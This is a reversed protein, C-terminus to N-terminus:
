KENKWKISVIVWVECPIRNDCTTHQARTGPEMCMNASWACSNEQPDKWKAASQVIARRLGWNAGLYKTKQRLFTKPCVTIEWARGIAKRLPSQSYCISETGLLHISKSDSAVPRWVEFNLLVQNLYVNSKNIRTIHSNSEPGGASIGYLIFVLMLLNAAKERFSESRYRM